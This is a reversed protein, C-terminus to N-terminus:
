EDGDGFADGFAKEAANPGSGAEGLMEKAFADGFSPGADAVDDILYKILGAKQEDDLKKLQKDLEKTQGRTGDIAKYLEMNTEM